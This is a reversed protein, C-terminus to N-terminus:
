LDRREFRKIGIFNCIFAYIIAIGLNASFLAVVQSINSLDVKSLEETYYQLSIYRVGPFKSIFIYLIFVISFIIVATNTKFFTSLMMSFQITFIYIFVISLFFLLLGVIEEKKIFQSSIIDERQVAFIYFMLMTVVFFLICILGIIAILSWVKAQYIKKRNNIRQTYLLISKNEIEGGLSRSAILSLIFFYIFISDVFFFMNLFFGMAYEKDQGNFVIASSNLFVGISYLAPIGFMTLMIWMDKRHLLKKFEINWIARKSLM